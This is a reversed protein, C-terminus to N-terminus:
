ARTSQRRPGRNPIGPVLRFVIKGDHRAAFAELRIQM